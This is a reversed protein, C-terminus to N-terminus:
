KLPLKGSKLKNKLAEGTVTTTRNGKGGNSQSQEKMEEMKEERM